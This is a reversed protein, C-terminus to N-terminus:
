PDMKPGRLPGISAKLPDMPAERPVWQPGDPGRWPGMGNPGKPPGMSARLPGESSGM